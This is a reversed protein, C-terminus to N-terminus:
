KGLFPPLAALQKDDVFYGHHLTGQKFLEVSERLADLFITPRKATNLYHKAPVEKL